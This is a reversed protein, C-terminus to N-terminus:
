NNDLRKFISKIEKKIIKLLYKLKLLTKQTNLWHRINKIIPNMYMSLKM